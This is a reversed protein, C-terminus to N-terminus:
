PMAQVRSVKNALVFARSRRASGRACCALDADADVVARNGGRSRWFHKAPSIGVWTRSPRIPGRRFGRWRSKLTVPLDLRASLTPRQV